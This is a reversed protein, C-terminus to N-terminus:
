KDGNVDILAYIQQPSLVVPATASSSTVTVIPTASFTGDGNGPLVLFGNTYPSPVNTGGVTDAFGFILDAHGSSTTAGVVPRSPKRRRWTLMKSDESRITIASDRDNCPHPLAGYETAPFL